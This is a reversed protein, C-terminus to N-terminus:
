DFTNDQWDRVPVTVKSGADTERAIGRQLTEHLEPYLSALYRAPLQREIVVGDHTKITYLTGDDSTHILILYEPTKLQGIAPLEDDAGYLPAALATLLGAALLYIGLRQIRQM